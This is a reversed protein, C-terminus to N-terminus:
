HGLLNGKELPYGNLLERMPLRKKGELQGELFAVQGQGAQVVLAPQNQLVLGPLAQEHTQNAAFSPKFLRIVKGQHLTYSGPWPQMARARNVITQASDQWNIEGDKKALMHAYTVGEHPQPTKALSGDLIRPLCNVLTEQGLQALKPSLTQSDDEPDIPMTATTYVDGADLELVLDMISVGTVADGAEIARQIPAAGRWRPLLSAHVNVFGRTPLDLLRQPLIRGYAVVVALDINAKQLTEFFADGEETGKKLTIPQLVTLGHEKAFTKVPPEHMQKGRHSPKDPQCVVLALTHGHTQCFRHLGLLSPVAFEPTGFFALHAM